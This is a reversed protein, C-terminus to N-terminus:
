NRLELEQNWMCVHVCAAFNSNSNSRSQPNSSFCFIYFNLFGFVYKGMQLM